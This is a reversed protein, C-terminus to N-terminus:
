SLFVLPREVPMHTRMSSADPATLGTATQSWGGPNTPGRDLQARVGNVYLERTDLTGVSASWINKSSDHLTWGTIREAGSIEPTEGPYAQYIVRYGNHGSDGAADNFTWTSTRRYVGGRLDVVIDGTMSATMSRVVDQVGDLSCPASLSCGTTGTATPSAYLTVEANPDDAPQAHPPHHPRHLPTANAPMSTLGLGTALAAAALACFVRVRTM